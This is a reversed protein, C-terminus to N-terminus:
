RRSTIIAFAVGLLAGYVLHGGLSMVNMESTAAGFQPGMGLMIPMILLPGLV